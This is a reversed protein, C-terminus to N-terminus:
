GRRSSPGWSPPSRWRRQRLGSVGDPLIRVAHVRGDRHRRRHRRPRSLPHRAATRVRGGLRGCKRPRDLPLRDLRARRGAREDALLMFLYKQISDNIDDLIQVTIKKNSLSPGTLRVLKRKFTDGGLLLFFTLFLVMITQGLFGVAGVSGSLLLNASSSAPRTSSSMRQRRDPPRPAAPRKRRRRKSKPRPARCRRCTAPPIPASGRWRPPSADEGSRAVARHDDAGARAAFLRRIRACGDRGGHRRDHGGRASDPNARSARRASEAHLCHPNRAAAIRLVDARFLSRLRGRDRGAAHARRRACGRAHPGHPRGTRDGAIGRAADAAPVPEPQMAHRM